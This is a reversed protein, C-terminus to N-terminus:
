KARAPSAWLKMKGNRGSQPLRSEDEPTHPLSPLSKDWDNRPYQPLATVDQNYVPTPKQPLEIGSLDISARTLNQTEIGRFIKVASKDKRSTRSGKETSIRGAESSGLPDLEESSVSRRFLRQRLSRKSTRTESSRGESKRGSWSGLSLNSFLPQKFFRPLVPMCGVIIGVAIEAFAWLGKKDTVLQQEPSASASFETLQISYVLRFIAAICALFGVGFVAVIRWKRRWRMQLRMVRRTPLVLIAFDSILNIVGSAVGLQHISFCSGPITQDWARARPNCEFIVLLTLVLYFVVNTWLLIHVMMHFLGGRHVVFITIYQLLISVKVLTIIPCYITSEVSSLQM